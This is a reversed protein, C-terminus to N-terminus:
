SQVGKVYWDITALKDLPMPQGKEVMQKGSQDSIPGTFVDYSGDMYGAVIKDAAQRVNEPLVKNYPSMKVAGEKMGWWADDSEWKGDLMAQARTIYYPGWIDEIATLHAHPAFKSMDAGQGFGFLKKKECVQLAAPSDTHTTIVDCGLNALTDAAASEKAPDFWSDIMLLKVKVNPNVAQAALTFANVGLVVEPVKFSGLYGITNTKTMMGAITGLVARGEHFRNNYVGVNKAKKYGTCHEFNATPFDKAVELTQDMYGFSTTFILKHGQAALDKIVPTASADENVNEVYDAVVKGGFHDVMAKRGKNHAWTWGYDGVPGLFIFGAKLPEDAFASRGFLPLASAAAAATKLFKRRNVFTM